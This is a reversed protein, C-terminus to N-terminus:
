VKESKKNKNKNSVDQIITKLAKTWYAAHAAHTNASYLIFINNNNNYYYGLFVFNARAM